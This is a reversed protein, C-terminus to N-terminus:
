SSEITRKRFPLGRSSLAYGALWLVGLTSWVVMDLGSLLPTEAAPRLLWLMHFAHHLLLLLGGAIMTMRGAGPPVLVVIALVLAPLAVLTKLWLRDGSRALYWAAEAPLNALWVIIFQAFWTWLTLLALTLLARELSQMRRASPHKRKLLSAVIAGALAALLQSLAFAFGFLSSWWNPDRSLVWDNAAFTMTPALVALGVASACRPHRTFVLWVALASWMVLYAGGRLLFFGESLYAARAAPLGAAGRAWPYLAELGLALPAALVLLLPMTLAAAEADARVPALWDESLLHGIMLLGLSGTAIGSLVIFAVYWAELLPGTAFFTGAVAAAIGAAGVLVAGGARPPRAAIAQATM